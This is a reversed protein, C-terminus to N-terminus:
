DFSFSFPSIMLTERLFLKVRVMRTSDQAPMVILPGFLAPRGVLPSSGSAMRMANSTQDCSGLVEPDVIRTHRMQLRVSACVPQLARWAQAAYAPSQTPSTSPSVMRMEGICQRLSHDSAVPAPFFKATTSSSMHITREVNAGCRIFTACIFRVKVRLWTV